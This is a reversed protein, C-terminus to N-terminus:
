RVSEATELEVEILRGASSQSLTLDTALASALTEMDAPLDVHRVHCFILDGDAAPYTRSELVSM